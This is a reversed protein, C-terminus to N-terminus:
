NKKKINQKDVIGLVIFFLVAIPLQRIRERTIPVKPYENDIMENEQIDWDKLVQLVFDIALNATLANTNRAQQIRDILESSLQSMDYSVTVENGKADTLTVTEIKIDLVNETNIQNLRAM